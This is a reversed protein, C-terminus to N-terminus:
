LKSGARAGWRPFIQAGIRSQSIVNLLPGRGQGAGPRKEAGTPTWPGPQSWKQKKGNELASGRWGGGEQNSILSLPGPLTEMHRQNGPPAVGEPSAPRSSWIGKLKLMIKNHGMDLTSGKRKGWGGHFWHHLM